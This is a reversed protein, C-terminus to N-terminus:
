SVAFPDDEDLGSLRIIDLVQELEQITKNLAINLKIYNELQKIQPIATTGGSHNEFTTCNNENVYEDIENKLRTIISTNFNYDNKANLLREKVTEKEESSLKKSKFKPSVSSKKSASRIKQNSKIRKSFHDVVDKVVSENINTKDYGKKEFYKYITPRTTGALKALKTITVYQAGKM